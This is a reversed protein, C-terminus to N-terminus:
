TYYTHLIHIINDKKIEFLLKCLVVVISSYTRKIQEVIYGSIRGRQPM